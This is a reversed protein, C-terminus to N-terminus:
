KHTTWRIRRKGARVACGKPCRGLAQRIMPYGSYNYTVGLIRNKSRALEVLENAEDSTVTLPKDCIVHIGAELCAKAAPYHHHNPTVIAVAEIGDDRGTEGVILADVDAYSRDPALGLEAASALAREPNSSLAGAVLEYQDDIRAAIRHVAGIFAGQGGGIMGLRIRDPGRADEQGASM